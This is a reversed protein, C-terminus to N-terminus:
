PARDEGLGASVAPKVPGALLLLPETPQREAQSGCKMREIEDAERYMKNSDLYAISSNGTRSCLEKLAPLQPPNLSCRKLSFFYTDPWATSKADSM